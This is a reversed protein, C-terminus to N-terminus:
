VAADQSRYNHRVLGPAIKVPDGYLGHFFIARTTVLRFTSQGLVHLPEQAILRDRGNSWTFVIPNVFGNPSVHGCDLDGRRQSYDQNKSRRNGTALM